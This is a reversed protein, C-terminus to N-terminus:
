QPLLGFLVVGLGASILVILAPHVKSWKIRVAAVIALLVLAQWSVAGFLAGAGSAALATVGISYAAYGILGIVAPRLGELAYQVPRMKQFSKAFRAILLIILFSPLVVGLTACLAGLIGVREMGVFTAINIAFPGPTSESIAIFDVLEALTMWGNAIVKQQILPIMAYGGGITFLGIEFFTIFLHLLESM